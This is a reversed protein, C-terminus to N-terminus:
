AKEDKDTETDVPAASGYVRHRPRGALIREKGWNAVKAFTSSSIFARFQNEDTWESVILFACPDNVDCFLRSNRHGGADTMIEVVKNFMSIFAEQKGDLVQYNMGITVM